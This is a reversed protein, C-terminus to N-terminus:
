SQVATGERRLADLFGPVDAPNVFIRAPGELLVGETLQTAYIRTREGDARFLGTHYGPMATGAIRLTVQPAHRRAILRAAPWRHRSFMTAVELWGDGVRYRMRGPGLLVLLEMIAVILAGLAIVLYGAQQGILVMRRALGLPIAMVAVLLLGIALRAGGRVAPPQFERM